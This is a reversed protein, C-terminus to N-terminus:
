SHMDIFVIYIDGNSEGSSTMDTLGVEDLQWEYIEDTLCNVNEPSVGSTALLHKLYKTAKYINMYAPDFKLTADKRLEEESKDKLSEFAKRYNDPAPIWKAIMRNIDEITSVLMDSPNWRGAKTDHVSGTECISGCITRWNNENGWGDIWAEIHAEAEQHSTARTRALHLNHM